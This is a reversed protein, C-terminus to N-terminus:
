RFRVEIDTWVRLRERLRKKRMQLAPVKMNKGTLENFRQAVEKWQLSEKDSLQILIQDERSIEGSIVIEGESDSRPPTKRKRRAPLAGLPEESGFDRHSTTQSSRTSTLSTISDHRYHGEGGPRNAGRLVSPNPAILIPAQNQSRFSTTSHAPTPQRSSRCDTSFAGVSTNPSSQPGPSNSQGSAPTASVGFAGWYPSQCALPSLPFHESTAVQIDSTPKKLKM